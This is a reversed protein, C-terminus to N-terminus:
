TSPTALEGLFTAPHAVRTHLVANLAPTWHKTNTSLAWDPASLLVAVATPLDNAHRLVPLIAPAHARVDQVSPAPWPELTVRALWGRYSAAAAERVTREVILDIAREVEQRVTDALVVTYRRRSTAALILVAKTAGWSTLCGQLVVGSDLFLRVVRRTRPM